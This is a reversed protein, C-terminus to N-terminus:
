KRGGKIINFIKDLASPPTEITGFANRIQPMAENILWKCSEKVGPKKSRFFLLHLGFEDVIQYNIPYRSSVINAYIIDSSERELDDIATHRHKIGLIKCIDTVFFWPKGKYLTARLKLKGFTFIKLNISTIARNSQEISTLKEVMSKSFYYKIFARGKRNVPKEHITQYDVGLSFGYKKIRCKIWSNFWRGIKLKEHLLRGDIWEAKNWNEAEAPIRDVKSTDRDM